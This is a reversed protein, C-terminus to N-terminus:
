GTGAPGAVPISILAQAVQAVVRDRERTLHNWTVRIVRWGAAMLEADRSRDKEFAVRPLHFRAGDVEVILRQRRWVFDVEYSHVRENIGPAPLGAKAVLDRFREEAVSRLRAPSGELVQRLLRAGRAGAREDVYRMLSRERVLSLAFAEAVARELERLSLVGALDLLTRKPTTMRIGRHRQVDRAPLERVRHVRLGEHARTTGVVTVDIPSGPREKLMRVVVAASVHSLTASPGCALCAAIAPGLESAVPGVQFVGRHLPRLLGNRIRGDVQIGTHGLALLQARTVVGHQKAAREFIRSDSNQM